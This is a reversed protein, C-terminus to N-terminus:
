HSLGAALLGILGLGLLIFVVINGSMAWPTKSSRHSLLTSVQLSSDEEGGRSASSVDSAMCDFASALGSARGWPAGGCHAWTGHNIWDMGGLRAALREPIVCGFHQTSGDTAPGASGALQCTSVVDGVTAPTTNRVRATGTVGTGHQWTKRGHVEGVGRPDLRM